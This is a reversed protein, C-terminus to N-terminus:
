VKAIIKLTALIHALIKYNIEHFKTVKCDVLMQKFIKECDPIELPVIQFVKCWNDLNLVTATASQLLRKMVLPLAQNPVFTGQVNTQFLQAFFKQFSYCQLYPSRFCGVAELRHKVAIVDIKSNVIPLDAVTCLGAHVWLYNITPCAAGFWLNHPLDSTDMSEYYLNNVYTYSSLIQAYFPLVKELIKDSISHLGQLLM